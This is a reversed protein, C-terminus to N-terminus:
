RFRRLQERSNRENHGCKYDIHSLRSNRHLPDQRHSHSHSCSSSSRHSSNRRLSRSEDADSSGSSTTSDCRKREIADALSKSPAYDKLSKSVKRRAKTNNSSASRVHSNGHGNGNSNSSRRVYQSAQSPQSLAAAAAAAAEPEVHNVKTLTASPSHAASGFNHFILDSALGLGAHIGKKVNSHINHVSKEFNIKIASKKGLVQKALEGVEQWSHHSGSIFYIKSFTRTHEACSIM